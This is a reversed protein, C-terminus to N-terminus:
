TRKNLINPGGLYEYKVYVRGDALQLKTANLIKLTMLWLKAHQKGTFAFQLFSPLEDEEVHSIEYFRALPPVDLDANRLNPLSQLTKQFSNLGESKLPQGRFFLDKLAAEDNRYLYYETSAMHLTTLSTCDILIKSVGLFTTYGSKTLDMPFLRGCCPCDTRNLSQLANVASRGEDGLGRLFRELIAMFYPPRPTIHDSLQAQPQLEFAALSWFTTRTGKRITKNLTGLANLLSIIGRLNKVVYNYNEFHDYIPDYDIKMCKSTVDPQDFVYNYVMDRVERPLDLFGKRDPAAKFDRQLLKLYSEDRRKEIRMLREKRIRAKREREARKPTAAIRRDDDEVAEELEELTMGSVELGREEAQAFLGEHQWKVKKAYDKELEENAKRKLM